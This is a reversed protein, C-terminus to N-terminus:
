LMDRRSLHAIMAAMVILGGGGGVTLSIQLQIPEQGFTHMPMLWPFYLGTKSAAAAVAVFTGMIGVTLPPVFSRFALAVWLQIGCMLLAATLTYVPRVLVLEWAVHGELAHEPALFAAIWGCFLLTLILLAMALGILMLLIVAKAVFVPWRPMPLSLIHPWQDAGHDMQALLVSVAIVFLPLMAFAWLALGGALFSDWTKAGNGSMLFLLSLVGVCTPALVTLSLALSRRLKMIEAKLCRTVSM